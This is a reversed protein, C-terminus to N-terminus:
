SFSNMFHMRYVVTLKGRNITNILSGKRATQVHSVSPILSIHATDSLGKIVNVDLDKYISMKNGCDAENNSLRIEMM